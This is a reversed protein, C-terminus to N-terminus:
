GEHGVTLNYTAETNFGGLPPAQGAVHITHPGQPLPSLMIWYGDAVSPSNRVPDPGFRNDPPLNLQYLPSQIRHGQLSVGDVESKLGTFTDAAARACGALEDKTTGGGEFASCEVNIIPVLVAQGSPITCKRVEATGFTGALFWVGGSQRAACHEGTTDLIPSSNLPFSLGWNWWTGSWEGLTQGFAISDGPLIGPDPNDGDLAQSRPTPLAQEAGGCGGILITGFLLSLIDRKREFAWPIRSHKRYITVKAGRVDEEPKNMM